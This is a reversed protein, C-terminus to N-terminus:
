KEFSNKFCHTDKAIGQLVTHRKRDPRHLDVATGLKGSLEFLGALLATQMQEDQRWARGFEVARNFTGITSVGLLEVLDRRTRQLHVLEIAFETLPFFDVVGDARMLGEAVESRAM